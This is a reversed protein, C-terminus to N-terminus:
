VSVATLEQGVYMREALNEYNGIMYATKGRNHIEMSGSLILLYMTSIPYVSCLAGFHLVKNNNEGGEM